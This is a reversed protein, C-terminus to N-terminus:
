AVSPFVQTEKQVYNLSPKPSLEAGGVGTFVSQPQEPKFEGLLEHVFPYEGTAAHHQNIMTRINDGHVRLLAAAGFEVAVDFLTTYDFKLAAKVQRRFAARKEPDPYIQTFYFRDEEAIARYEREDNTMEVIRGSVGDTVQAAM